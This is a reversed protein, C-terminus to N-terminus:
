CRKLMYETGSIHQFGAVKINKISAENYEDISAYVVDIEPYQNFFYKAYELTLRSSYYHGRFRPLIAYMLYFRALDSYGGVMGVPVGDLYAIYISDKEGKEKAMRYDRELSYLDGIYVFDKQNSLSIMVSKHEQNREDYEQICFDGINIVEM